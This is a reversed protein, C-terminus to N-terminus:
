VGLQMKTKGVHTLRSGYMLSNNKRTYGHDVTRVYGHILKGDPGDGLVLRPNADLFHATTEAVLEAAYKVEENGDWKAYYVLIYTTFENEVRGQPGMASVLDRNTAGAEICISPTVPIKDQDGYFIGAEVGNIPPYLINKQDELLAQIRKAVESSFKAQTM